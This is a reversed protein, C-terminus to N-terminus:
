PGLFVCLLIERLFKHLFTPFSHESILLSNIFPQTIKRINELILIDDIFNQM